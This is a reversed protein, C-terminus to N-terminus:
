PIIAAVVADIISWLPQSLFAGALATFIALKWDHRRQDAKEKREKELEDLRAIGKATLSVAVGPEPKQSIYGQEALYGFRLDDSILDPDSSFLGEMQLETIAAINCNKHIFSLIEYETM